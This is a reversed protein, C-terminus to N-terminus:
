EEEEEEEDVDCTEDRKGWAPVALEARM